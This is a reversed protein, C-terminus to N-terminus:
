CHSCCGGKKGASAKAKLAEKLKQEYLKDNFGERNRAIEIALYQIRTSLMTNSEDYAGRYDLRLLCGQNFDPVTGDFHNMYPRWRAKAPESKFEEQDLVDVNLKPFDRRFERYIEDDFKTLKLLSPRMSTILKYHVDAMKFAKEAWRMEIESDNVYEEAPRSLLNAVGKATKDKPVAM